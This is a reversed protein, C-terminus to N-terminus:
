PGRPECKPYFMMGDFTMMMDQSNRPTFFSLQASFKKCQVDNANFWTDGLGANDRSSTTMSCTQESGEYTITLKDYDPSIAVVHGSAAQYLATGDDLVVPSCEEQALTPATAILLALLTTSSRPM